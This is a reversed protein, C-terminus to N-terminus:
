RGHVMGVLAAVFVEGSVSDRRVDLIEAEVLGYARQGQVAAVRHSEVLKGSGM